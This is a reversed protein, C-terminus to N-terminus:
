EGMTHNQQYLFHKLFRLAKEYIYGQRIQQIVWRQLGPYPTLKTVMTGFVPSILIKQGWMGSLKRLILTEDNETDSNQEGFSIEYIKDLGQFISICDEYQIDKLDCREGAYLDRKEVIQNKHRHVFFGDVPCTICIRGKSPLRNDIGPVLVHGRIDKVTVQPWKSTDNLEEKWLYMYKLISSRGAFIVQNRFSNKVDVIFKKSDIIAHNDLKFEPYARVKVHNGQAFIVTDTKNHKIIYPEKKYLPWIVKLKVPRETPQCQFEMFFQAAEESYRTAMVEYIQWKKGINMVPVIEINRQKQVNKMGAKKLIYYKRGVRVDADQPLMKGKEGDFVAGENPVGKVISPLYEKLAPDMHISYKEAPYRGVEVYTIGRRKLREMDYVYKRQGSSAITIKRNFCKRLVEKPVALLGLEMCVKQDAFNVKLRLPAPLNDSNIVIAEGGNALITREPCNKNDEGRSHRFFPVRNGEAVLTVKQHCLECMFLGSHVSVSQWNTKIAAKRATIPEWERGNWHVVHTLTAMQM